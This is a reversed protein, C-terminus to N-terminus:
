INADLKKLKPEAASMAVTQQLVRKPFKRAMCNVINFFKKVNVRFQERTASFHTSAAEVTSHVRQASNQIVTVLKLTPRICRSARWLALVPSLTPESSDDEVIPWRLLPIM